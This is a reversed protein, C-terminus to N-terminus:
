NVHCGSSVLDPISFFGTHVDYTHAGDAARIVSPTSKWPLQCSPIVQRTQASNRICKVPERSRDETSSTHGQSVRRVTMGNSQKGIHETKDAPGLLTSQQSATVAAPVYGGRFVGTFIVDGPRLDLARVPRPM